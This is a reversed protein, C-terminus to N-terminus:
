CLACDLVFSCFTYISWVLNKLPMSKLNNGTKLTRPGYEFVVHGGGDVPVIESDILGGLHGASEYLTVKTRDFRQAAQLAATLGTIGGGIVGLHKPGRDRPIFSNRRFQTYPRFIPRRIKRALALKPTNFPWM